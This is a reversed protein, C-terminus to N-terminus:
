ASPNEIPPEAAQSAGVKFGFSNAAMMGTEPIAGPFVEAASSCSKGIQTMCPLASVSFGIKASRLNLLSIAFRPPWRNEEPFIIAEIVLQM